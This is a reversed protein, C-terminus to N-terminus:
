LKLTAPTYPRLAARETPKWSGGWGGIRAPMTHFM